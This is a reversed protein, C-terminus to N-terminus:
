ECCVRLREPQPVSVHGSSIRGLAYLALCFVVAKLWMNLSFFFGENFGSKCIENFALGYLVLVYGGRAAACCYLWVLAYGVIASLVVVGAMGYQPYYALYMTYVNTAGAPGVAVYGLHTSPAAVNFGMRNALHLFFFSISWTESLSSPNQLYADFAALPGVTYLLATNGVVRVDGEAISMVDGGKAVRLLTIPVYMLLVGM